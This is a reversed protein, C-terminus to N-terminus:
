NNGFVHIKGNRVDILTNFVNGGQKRITAICGQIRAYVQAGEFTRFSMAVKQKVKLNRIAQEALNNTFPVEEVFAFALVATQHQILRNLLNRGKTNKPKGRKGKEPPPEETDAVQCIAQYQAIWTAENTLMQTGKESQKYLEFLLDQMKAAWTSGQEVLAFLERLIHANCLAHRCNTFDFYSSWCDHIAWNKFDKLLSVKDQLAEKGRKSHVFLYTFLTTCATHFWHLKGEVRMGTEDFHAVESKLIDKKIDEEMPSLDAYLRANASIITGGNMAYGYLDSFLQSIKGFPMRYDTNLMSSLALIRNGYQVTAAAEKPFVGLQRQGCCCYSVYVQHEVVWLKPAPIDFVQRREHVGITNTKDLSRGCCSCTSAYYSLVEDPESVMELTKGKHGAQGGRRKGSSKAIAPKKSYGELSPPKHSNKSDLRLQRNLEKNEARLEKNEMELSLVKGELFIIKEQLITVLKHLELIDDKGAM